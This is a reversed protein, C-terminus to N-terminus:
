SVITGDICVNITFRVFGNIWIPKIRRRFLSCLRHTSSVFPNREVQVCYIEGTSLTLSFVHQRHPYEPTPYCLSDIVDSSSSVVDDFTSRHLFHESLLLKPQCDSPNTFLQLNTGTLNTWFRKWQRKSALELKDHHQVTLWHKMELWRWALLLLIISRDVHRFSLIKVGNKRISYKSSFEGRDADSRRSFPANSPLSSPLEADFSRGVHKRRRLRQGNSRIRSFQKPLLRLRALRQDDVVSSFASQFFRNEDTISACLSTWQRSFFIREDVNGNTSWHSRKDETTANIGENIRRDSFSFFFFESSVIKRRWGQFFIPEAKQWQFASRDDRMRSMLVSCLCLVVIVHCM